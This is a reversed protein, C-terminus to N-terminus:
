KNRHRLIYKTRKQKKSKNKTKNKKTLKMGGAQANASLGTSNVQTHGYPDLIIKTRYYNLTEKFLIEINELPYASLLKVEFFQNLPPDSIYIYDDEDWDADADTVYDYDSEKNQFIYYNKYEDYSALLSIITYYKNKYSDNLYKEFMKSIGLKDSLYTELSRSIFKLNTIHKDIIGNGLDNMVSVVKRIELIEPIESKKKLERFKNRIELYYPTYKFNGTYQDRTQDRRMEKAKIFKGEVKYYLEKEFIDNDIDCEKEKCLYFVNKNNHRHDLITFKIFIYTLIVEDFGYSYFAPKRNKQIFNKYDMLNKIEGNNIKYGLIGALIRIKISEMSYLQGSNTVVDFMINVIDNNDKSFSPNYHPSLTIIAGSAIWEMIMKMLNPTIAHSCNILFVYELTGYNGKNGDSIKYKGDKGYLPEARVISGLTTPHGLYGKDKKIVDPFNFTFIRIFNYRNDENKQIEAIFLKYMQHIKLLEKEYKGYNEKIVKNINNNSSGSSKYKEKNYEQFFMLDVYIYLYWNNSPESPNFSTRHKFTEVLKMFGCLYLLTKDSIIPAMPIFVNTSFVKKVITDGPINDIELNIEYSSSTYDLSSANAM